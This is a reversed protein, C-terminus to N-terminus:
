PQREAGNSPLGRLLEDQEYAEATEERLRVLQRLTVEIPPSPARDIASRSESVTLTVLSLGAYATRQTSVQVSWRVAGPAPPEFGEDDLGGSGIRGSQLDGLGLQGAELDALASCALDVAEQELQSRTLATLANRAAALSFTAAGIFLGISLVVEFLVSGRPVCGGRRGAAVRTM